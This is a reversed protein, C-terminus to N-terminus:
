EGIVRPHLLSTGLLNLRREANRMAVWRKVENYNEPLKASGYDHEPQDKYVLSMKRIARDLLNQSAPPVEKFTEENFYHETIHAISDGLYALLLEQRRTLEKVTARKRAEIASKKVLRSAPIPIAHEWISEDM